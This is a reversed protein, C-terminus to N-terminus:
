WRRHLLSIECQVIRRFRQFMEIVGDVEMKDASEEHNVICDKKHKEYSVACEVSNTYKECAGCLVPM